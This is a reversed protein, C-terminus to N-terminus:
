FRGWAHLFWTIRKRQDIILLGIYKKGLGFKSSKSRLGVPCIILFFFSLNVFFFNGVSFSHNFVPIVIQFGSFITRCIKKWSTRKLQERIKKEGPEVMSCTQLSYSTAAADALYRRWISHLIISKCIPM